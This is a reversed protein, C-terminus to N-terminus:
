PFRVPNHKTCCVMWNYSLKAGVDRENCPDASRPQLKAFCPRLMSRVLVKMALLVHVWNLFACLCDDYMMRIFYRLSLGGFQLVIIQDIYAKTLVPRSLHRRAVVGTWRRNRGKQAKKGEVHMSKYTV